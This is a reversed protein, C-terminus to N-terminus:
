KSNDPNQGNNTKNKQIEAKQIDANIRLTDIIYMVMSFFALVLASVFLSLAAADPMEIGIIKFVFVLLAIAYFVATTFKGYWHSRVTVKIKKFVLLAGCIMFLEKSIFMGALWWSVIGKVVFCVLVSCQMLKDALPDLFKGLDSVWNNRRALYGDAVDTLGALAFVSLPVYIREEYCDFFLYIFLPVLALRIASLINPIHRLKTKAKNAEMNTENAEKNAEM